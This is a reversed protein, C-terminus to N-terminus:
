NRFLLSNNKLFHLCVMTCLQQFLQFQWSIICFLFKNKTKWNLTNIKMVKPQANTRIRKSKDSKSPSSKRLKQLFLRVVGSCCFSSCCKILTIIFFTAQHYKKFINETAFAVRCDCIDTWRDTQWLFRKAQQNEIPQQIMIENLHM